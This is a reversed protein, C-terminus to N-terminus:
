EIIEFPDSGVDTNHKVSQLAFTLPEPLIGTSVIRHPYMVGDVRQYDSFDMTNIKGNVESVTRLKYGSNVAYFHTVTRGNPQTVVVAYAAQGHVVHAGDMALTYGRERYRTEPYLEAQAQLDAIADAHLPLASGMQVVSARAGNLVTTNFLNGDLTMEQRFLLDRKRVQTMVLPAGQLSATMTLSMDRIGALTKAGAIAEIYKDLVKDANMDEPVPIGVMKMPHGETTFYRVQGNPTYKRLLNAVPADGVALIHLQQPHLYAQALELIDTADLAALTNTFNVYHDKVTKVRVAEIAYKDLIAPDAIRELFRERALTRAAEIAEDSVLEKQFTTLVALTTTLLSDVLPQPVGTALVNFHGIDSDPLFGIKMDDAWGKALLPQRLTNDLLANFLEIGVADKSGPKLNLAYAMQLVADAQQPIGIFNAVVSKPFPAVEQLEALLQGKNEWNAFHLETQQKATTLDVPGRIVLYSLRPRFNRQYFTKCDSPTVRAITKATTREGYPHALGFILQRTMNRAIAVSDQGDRALAALLAGKARELEAEPFTSHKACDAVLALLGGLQAAKSSATIGRAHTALHASLNVLQDQIAQASRTDTGAALLQGVLEARGAWEGDAHIPYRSYLQVNVEDTLTDQLVLVTLGNALKFDAFFHPSLQAHASFAIGCLLTCFLINKM